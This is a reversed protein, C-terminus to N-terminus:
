RKMMGVPQGAKIVAEGRKVATAGEPLGTNSNRRRVLIGLEAGTVPTKVATARKVPTADKVHTVGTVPIADKVPTVDKVPIMDKGLNMDKVHNSDKVGIM